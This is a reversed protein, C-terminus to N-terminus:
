KKYLFASTDILVDISADRLAILSPFCTIIEPYRHLLERAKNDFDDEGILSNLMNLQLKIPEVHHFVKQWNVFYEWTTIKDTFSQVIFNFLEDENNTKTLSYLLSRPM